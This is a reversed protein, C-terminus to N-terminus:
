FFNNIKNKKMNTTGWILNSKEGKLFFFFFNKRNM